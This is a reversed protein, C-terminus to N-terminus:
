LNRNRMSDVIQDDQDEVLRMVLPHPFEPFSLFLNRIFWGASHTGFLRKKIKLLILPYGGEQYTQQVIKLNKIVTVAM